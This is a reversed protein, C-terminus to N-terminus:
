DWDLYEEIIVATEVPHTMPFLHGGGAISKVSAREPATAQLAAGLDPPTVDDESGQIILVPVVPALAIDEDEVGLLLLGDVRDPHAAVFERAVTGGVGHGGIWAREHGLHDLVATVDAVRERPSETDSRSGIRVIHFGAEEALYHAVVGLADKELDHEPILVLVIPGEGDIVHPIAFDTM